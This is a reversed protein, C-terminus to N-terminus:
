DSGLGVGILTAGFNDAFLHVLRLSVDVTGLKQRPPFGLLASATRAL